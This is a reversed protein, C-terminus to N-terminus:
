QPIPNFQNYIVDNVFSGYFNWASSGRFLLNYFKTKVQSVCTKYCLNKKMENEHTNIQDECKWLQLILTFVLLVLVTKHSMPEHGEHQADNAPSM